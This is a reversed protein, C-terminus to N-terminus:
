KKVKKKDLEKDLNVSHLPINGPPSVYYDEELLTAHSLVDERTVSQEVADERSFLARFICGRCSFM